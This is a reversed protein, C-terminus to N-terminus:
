LKLHPGLPWLLLKRALLLLVTQLAEQIHEPPSFAHGLQWHATMPVGCVSPRQVNTHRCTSSRVPMLSSRLPGRNWLSEWHSETYKNTLPNYSASLMLIAGQGPSRGGKKRAMKKGGGKSHWETYYESLCPSLRTTQQQQGALCGATEQPSPSSVCSGGPSVQQERSNQGYEWSIM